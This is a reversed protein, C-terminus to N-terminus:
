GAAPHSGALSADHTQNASARVQKFEQALEKVLKRLEDREEARLQREILEALEGLRVAGFSAATGKLNHAVHRVTEMDGAAVANILEALRPPVSALFVGFLRAYAEAGIEQELKGAVGSVDPGVAQPPATAGKAEGVNTRLPSYRRALADKLAIPDIPKTIFDDMGAALCKEREGAMASATVAIIYTKRLTGKLSRIRATAEYGDMKPMLCDMLIVDYDTARVAELAHLGNPAVDVHYGLHRLMEGAVVQNIEFDDVLLARPGSSNANVHAQLGPVPVRASPEEEDPAAPSSPKLPVDFRFTTGLGPQSDFALEGGMLTVLQRCIALGLGTGGFRRTTSTDAQSFPDLLKPGAAPDIGIGTDAVEFAVRGDGAATVRMDIRGTATFKIANDVLNTLIQRLRVPDGRVWGPVDPALDLALTLGKDTAPSTLLGIAGEVLAPLDFAIEELVLKGAEVKSFDLIANIIALLNQGSDRLLGLYRRQDADLETDLLLHVMGLVGNMPTRIEHSMNALFRSKFQSSEVAIDRAHTAQEVLAAQAVQLDAMRDAQAQSLRAIERDQAKQASLDTFTLCMLHDGDVELPSSGVLVPVFAGTSDLLDIEFTAGLGGPGGIAEAGIPEGALFTELPSGVITEISCQLLEALRRNAYLILGISSLTAAGDRMNEVFMRYPRDATSLTFVRRGPGGDSVVFADVEGAGIARLTDEAESLRILADASTMPAQDPRDQANDPM